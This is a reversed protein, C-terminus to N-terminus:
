RVQLDRALVPFDGGRTKYVIAHFRGRIRDGKVTVTCDVRTARTQTCAARVRPHSETFMKVMEEGSLRAAVQAETVTLKAGGFGAAPATVLTFTAACSAAVALHTNRM